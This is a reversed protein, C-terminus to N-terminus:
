CRKAIPHPRPLMNVARSRNDATPQRGFANVFKPNLFRAIIDSSGGHAYPAVLLVPRTPYNPAATITQAESPVVAFALAATRARLTKNPM